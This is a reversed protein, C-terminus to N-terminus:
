TLAILCDLPALYRVSALMSALSKIPRIHTVSRVDAVRLAFKWVSPGIYLSHSGLTCAASGPASALVGVTTGTVTFAPVALSGSLVCNVIVMLHFAGFSGEPSGTCLRITTVWIVSLILGM